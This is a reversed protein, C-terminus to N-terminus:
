DPLAPVTRNYRLPVSVIRYEETILTFTSTPDVFKMGDPQAHDKYEASALAFNLDGLTEFWLEAVGTM